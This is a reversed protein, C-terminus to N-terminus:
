GGEIHGQAQALLRERDILPVAGLLQQPQGEHHAAGALGAELWRDPDGPLRHAGGGAHGDGGQQPPAVPQLGATLAERQGVVDGLRRGGLQVDGEVPEEKM